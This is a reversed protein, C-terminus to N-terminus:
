RAALAYAAGDESTDEGGEGEGSRGGGDGGAAAPGAEDQGAGAGGAGGGGGGGADEGDDDDGAAIYDHALLEDWSARRAPDRVLLRRLFAVLLPAMDAPYAIPEAAVILKRLAQLSPAYFPPAGTALEFLM